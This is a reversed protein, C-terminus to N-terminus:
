FNQPPADNGASMLAEISTGAFDSNLDGHFDPLGAELATPSSGPSLADFGLNTFAALSGKADFDRTSSNTETTVMTDPTVTSGMTNDRTSPQSVLPAPITQETFNGGQLDLPETMIPTGGSYGSLFMRNIDDMPAVASNLRNRSYSSRNPQNLALTSPKDQPRNHTSHIPISPNVTSAHRQNQGASSLQGHEMYPEGFDTLKTFSGGSRIDHSTAMKLDLMGYPQNLIPDDPLANLDLLLQSSEDLDAPHFDGLFTSTSDRPLTEVSRSTGQLSTAATNNNSTRQHNGPFFVGNESSILNGHTIDDNFDLQFSGNSSDNTFNSVARPNLEDLDYNFDGNNGLVQSPNADDPRQSSVNENGFIDFKFDVKPSTVADQAVSIHPMNKTGTADGTVKSLEIADLAMSPDSLHRLHATSGSTNAALKPKGIRGPASQLYSASSGTVLSNKRSQALTTQLVTSDLTNLGAVSQLVPSATSSARADSPSMLPTSPFGPEVQLVEQISSNSTVSSQSAARIRGSMISGRRKRAEVRQTCKGDLAKNEKQMKKHEKSKNPDIFYQPLLVVNRTPEYKLTGDKLFGPDSFCQYSHGQEKLEQVRKNCANMIDRNKKAFETCLQGYERITLGTIVKFVRHFHWPTINVLYGLERFGILGGRKLALATAEAPSIKPDAPSQNSSDRSDERGSLESLSTASERHETSNSNSNSNSEVEIGASKNIIAYAIYACALEVRKVNEYDLETILRNKYYVHGDRPVHKASDPVSPNLQQLEDSINTPLFYLRSKNKRMSTGTFAIYRERLEGYDQAPVEYCLQPKFSIADNVNSLVFNTLDLAVEKIPM